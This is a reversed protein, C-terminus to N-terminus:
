SCPWCCWCPVCSAGRRWCEVVAVLALWSCRLAITVPWGSWLWLCSSPDGGLPPLLLLVENLLPVLELLLLLLALEQEVWCQVAEVASAVAVTNVLTVCLLLGSEELLFLGVDGGCLGQWGNLHQEDAACLGHIVFM